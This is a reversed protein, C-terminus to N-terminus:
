THACVCCTYIINPAHVTHLHSYMCLLYVRTYVCCTTMLIYLALLCSFYVFLAHSYSYICFCTFANICLARLCSYMCLFYGHTCVCCTSTLIYLTLIRPYICPLDLQIYVSCISTLIYLLLCIYSYVFRTSIFVYLPLLCSYGRVSSTASLIIVVVLIELLNSPSDGYMYFM